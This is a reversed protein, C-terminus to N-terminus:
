KQRLECMTLKFQLDEVEEKTRVYAITISVFYITLVIFIIFDRM